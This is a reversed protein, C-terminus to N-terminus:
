DIVAQVEVVRVPVASTRTVTGLDGTEGTTARWTVRYTVTARLEHAGGPVSTSPWRYVHRCSGTHDGADPRYPRGPGVCTLESGDGPDWVVSVPEAVVTATVGTVSASVEAPAWHTDVWLWTPVGVLQDAPPNRGIVPTTLPLREVALEAAREAALLGSFPDAPDYRGFWRHVLQLDEDWCLFAYLGGRVPDLPGGGLDIAISVSSTSGNEFGYYGCTWRPGSGAAGRRAYSALTGSPAAVAIAVPTDGVIAGGGGPGVVHDEIEAAAGSTGVAAALVVTLVIVLLRRM